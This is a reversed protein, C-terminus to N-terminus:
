KSLEGESRTKCDVLMMRRQSNQVDEIIAHCVLDATCNPSM